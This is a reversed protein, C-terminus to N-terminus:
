NSSVLDLKYKILHLFYEVRHFLLHQIHKVENQYRIHTQLIQLIQSHIMRVGELYLAYTPSEILATPISTHSTTPPPVTPSTTPKDIPSKTPFSSPSQSLSTPAPTPILISSINTRNHNKGTDFSIQIDWLYTQYIKISDMDLQETTIKDQNHILHHLYKFRMRHILTTIILNQHVMMLQKLVQQLVYEFNVLVLHQIQKLSLTFIKQLINGDWLQDMTSMNYETVDLGEGMAHVKQCEKPVKM